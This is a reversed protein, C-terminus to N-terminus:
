STTGFRGIIDAVEAKFRRLKPGTLSEKANIVISLPDLPRNHDRFEYHLHPGTAWGTMGVYGIIDGQKVRNGKCSKLAFRSMHAYVTSYSHAHNIIVVKGYGNGTGAFKIIGDSTAHIPTGSAAAFDVGTHKKWKGLIPHIRMSFRSSIRKFELPLRLFSQKLSRGDFDYYGSRNDSYDKFWAAQLNRGNVALEAALVRGVHLFKGDKWFTEYAISFCDGRRLDSSFNIKEKFISAIQLAIRSPIEAAAAASLLSSKIVGTRTEVHRRIVSKRKSISLSKSLGHNALNVPIVSSKNESLRDNEYIFESRKFGLDSIQNDFKLKEYRAEEEPFINSLSVSPTGTSLLV